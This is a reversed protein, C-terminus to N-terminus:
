KKNNNKSQNRGVLYSTTFENLVTAFLDRNGDPDLAICTSALYATLASITAAVSKGDTATAIAENIAQAQKLLEPNLKSM